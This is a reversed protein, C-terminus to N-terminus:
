SDIPRRRAPGRLTLGAALLLLGALGLVVVDTGTFPLENGGLNAAGNAESDDSPNYSGPNNANGDTHCGPDAADIAGDGDNDASDSCQTAGAGGGNDGTDGTDGVGENGSGDDTGTDTAVAPTTATAAPTTTVAAPTTTTV